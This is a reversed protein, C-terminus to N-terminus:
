PREDCLPFISTSKRRRESQELATDRAGPNLDVEWLKTGDTARLALLVGHSGMAYIAAGDVTPTTRPGNGMSDLLKPGAPVRWLEKGTAAELAVVYETTADSDMTYLRDAVVSISSYGEGIPRRWLVRPGEAPWARALATEPSVGDRHVGRFQPWDVPVAPSAALLALCLSMLFPTFRAM